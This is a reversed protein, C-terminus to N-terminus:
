EPIFLFWEDTILFYVTKSHNIYGGGLCVCVCGGCCVCVCVAMIFQMFQVIKCHRILLSILNLAEINDVSRLLKIFKNM